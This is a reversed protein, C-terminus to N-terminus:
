WQAPAGCRSGMLGQASADLIIREGSLDNNVEGIIVRGDPRRGSVIIGQGNPNWYGYDYRVFNPQRQAYNPDRVAQLVALANRGEDPLRVRALVANSGRIPSWEVGRTKWHWPPGTRQVLNAPVM